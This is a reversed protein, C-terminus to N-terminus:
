ARPNNISAQSRERLKEMVEVVSHQRAELLGPLEGLLVLAHAHQAGLSARPRYSHELVSHIGAIWWIEIRSAANM